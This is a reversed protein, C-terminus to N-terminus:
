VLADSWWEGELRTMLSRESHAARLLEPDRSHILVGGRHWLLCRRRVVAEVLGPELRGRVAASGHRHAHYLLHDLVAGSDRDGAAVQLVESRWGPRLYYLYWGLVRGGDNRVLHAVLRGRRAVRALEAFLWELFAEDYDPLLELGDGVVSIAEVLTRPTLPEAGLDVPAPELLPAAAVQTVADLAGALPRLAMRARPRKLRPAAVRAAVHWPRFVRVWHVGKLHLTEGGLRAWMQRVVDSATDTATADQPGRLMRAMLLAGLAKHRQQPDVVFHQSWVFRVPRTHLCMRRVEAAIFGAIRGGGDTAVLSPLEPDAWPQELLTRRLLDVMAPDARREGSGMVLEFLAAVEPLDERVLPRIVSM